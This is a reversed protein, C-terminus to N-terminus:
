EDYYVFGQDCGDKFLRRMRELQSNGKTKSGEKLHANGDTGSPTKKKNPDDKKKGWFM